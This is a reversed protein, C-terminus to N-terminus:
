ALGISGCGGREGIQCIEVVSLMSRESQAAFRAVGAKIGVGMTASLGVIPLLDGTM